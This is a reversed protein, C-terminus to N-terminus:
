EVFIAGYESDDGVGEGPSNVDTRDKRHQGPFSLSKILDDSRNLVKLPRLKKAFGNVM